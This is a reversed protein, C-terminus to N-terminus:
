PFIEIVNSYNDHMKKCSFASMERVYKNTQKKKWKNRSLKRIIYKASVMNM